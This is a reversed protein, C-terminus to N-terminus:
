RVYLYIYIGLLVQGAGIVRAYKGYAERSLEPFGLSTKKWIGRRFLDPWFLYLARWAISVLGVLKM